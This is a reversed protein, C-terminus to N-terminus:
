FRLNATAGLMTPSTSPMLSWQARKSYKARNNRFNSAHSMIGVGAILSLSGLDGVAYYLTRRKVECEHTTCFDNLERRLLFGEAILAGVGLGAFVAGTMLRARANRQRGDGFVSQWAEYQGLAGSGIGAMVLSAGFAFGTGMHVHWPETDYFCGHVGNYGRTDWDQCYRAQEMASTIQAGLGIAFSTTSAALLGIGAAPKRPVRPVPAPAPMPPPPPPGVVVVTPQEVVPAPAPAPTVVVIPAETGSDPPVFSLTAALALGLM